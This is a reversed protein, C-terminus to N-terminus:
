LHLFAQNSHRTAYQRLESFTWPLIGSWLFVFLVSPKLKIRERIISRHLSSLDKSIWRDNLELGIGWKGSPRVSTPVICIWWTSYKPLVVAGVMSRIENLGVDSTAQVGLSGCFLKVKQSCKFIVHFETRPQLSYLNDVPLDGHQRM